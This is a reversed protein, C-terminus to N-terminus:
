PQPTLLAEDLIKQRLSVFCREGRSVLGRAVFAAITVFPMVAICALMWWPARMFMGSIVVTEALAVKRKILGPEYVIRTSRRTKLTKRLLWSQLFFNTWTAVHCFRIMANIDNRAQQYAPDTFDLVGAQALDFLSDRIEFLRQRAVSVVWTQWPGLIVWALLGILFLWAYM